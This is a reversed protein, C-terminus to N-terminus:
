GLRELGAEGDTSKGVTIETGGKSAAVAMTFLSDFSGTCYVGTGTCSSDDTAM